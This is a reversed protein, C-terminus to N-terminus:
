FTPLHPYGECLLNTHGCCCCHSSGDRCDNSIVGSQVFTVQALVEADQEALRPVEPGGVVVGPVHQMHQVHTVLCHAVVASDAEWDVRTVSPIQEDCRHEVVEVVCSTTAVVIEVDLECQTTQFGVDEFLISGVEVHDLHDYREGLVRVFHLSTIDVNEPLNQAIGVHTLGHARRPDLLHDETESLLPALRCHFDQPHLYAEM